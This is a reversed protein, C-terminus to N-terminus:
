SKASQNSTKNQVKNLVVENGYCNRELITAIYDRADNSVPMNNLSAVYRHNYYLSVLPENMKWVIPKDFSISRCTGKSKFVGPEWWCIRFGYDLLRM